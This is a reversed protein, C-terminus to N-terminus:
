RVLTINGKQKRLTPDGIHRFEVYYAYVGVDQDTDNYRGDWGKGQPDNTSSYLEKGWRNFVEFRVIEAIDRGVPLLFDNIGDGNPSFGSAVLLIPPLIAPVTVSATATCGATPTTVTVTYTTTQLPTVIPNPSNVDSLRDAPSWLYSSGAPAGGM